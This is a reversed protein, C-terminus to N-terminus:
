ISFFIGYQPFLILVSKGPEGCVIPKTSNVKFGIEWAEGMQHTKRGKRMSHPISSFVWANGMHHLIGCSPFRISFFVWVIPFIHTGIEWTRWICHTKYFIAPFWNGLSEGNSPKPQRELTIPFQHSFVHMEWTIFYVMFHSDLPFPILVLKGPEAGYLLIQQM